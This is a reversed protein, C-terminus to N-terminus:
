SNKLIKSIEKLSDSVIKQLDAMLKSYIDPIIFYVLRPRGGTKGKEKDKLVLGKSILLNIPKTVTNRSINLNTAIDEASLKGRTEVLLKLINLESDSLGYVFKFIALVDVERGDPFKVKREM